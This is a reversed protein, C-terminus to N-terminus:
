NMITDKKLRKCSSAQPKYSTAKKKKLKLNFRAREAAPGTNWTVTKYM